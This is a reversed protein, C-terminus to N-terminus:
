HRTPCRETQCRRSYPKILGIAQDIFTLYHLPQHTSGSPVWRNVADINGDNGSALPMRTDVLGLSLNVGQSTTKADEDMYGQAERESSFTFLVKGSITDADDYIFQVKM